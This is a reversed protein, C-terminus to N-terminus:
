QCQLYSRVLCNFCFAPQLSLETTLVAKQVPKTGLVWLTTGLWGYSCNWPMQCGSRVEAPLVHYVHVCAPLTDVCLVRAGLAKAAVCRQSAGASALSPPASGLISWDAGRPRASPRPLAQM